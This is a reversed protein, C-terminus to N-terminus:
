LETKLLGDSYMQLLLSNKNFLAKLTQSYYDSGNLYEFVFIDGDNPLLQDTETTTGEELEVYPQVNDQALQSM